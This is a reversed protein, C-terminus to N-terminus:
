CGFPKNMRNYYLYDKKFNWTLLPTKLVEEYIPIFMDVVLPKNMNNYYQYDKKLNWTLLPTEMNIFSSGWLNSYIYVSKLENFEAWSGLFHNLNYFSDLQKSGRQEKWCKCDITQVKDWCSNEPFIGRSSESFSYKNSKSPASYM